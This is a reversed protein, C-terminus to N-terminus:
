HLRIKCHFHLLVVVLFRLLLLLLLLLQLLVSMSTIRVPNFQQM